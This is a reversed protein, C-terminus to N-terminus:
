FRWHDDVPPLREAGRLRDWCYKVRRARRHWAVVRPDAAALADAVSGGAFRARLRAMAFQDAARFHEFLRRRVPGPRSGLVWAAALDIVHVSGDDALLVDRYNLDAVAVGRAHLGKVVEQLRDFRSPEVSDAACEALPSAAVWDVALGFAGRRGRFRPLGPAGAAAVYARCERRVLWRGLTNRVIWPRTAYHKLAVEEGQELYVVIEAKTRNRGAIRRVIRDCDLDEPYM